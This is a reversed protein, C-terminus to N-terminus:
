DAHGGETNAMAALIVAFVSDVEEQVEWPSFGAREADSILRDSLATALAPDNSVHSPLHKAMWRHLFNLGRTSM